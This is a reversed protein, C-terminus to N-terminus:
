ETLIYKEIAEAVGDNDNDKVVIDAEEKIYPASNEMMIGLGVNKIMQLDNVNDGIAIIEKKDIGLNNSLNELAYWKDVNTNTIETYYYELLVSDTGDKIMKRSIHAVDLVDIDKIMRLKRIISSFIVKSNDCITIKM